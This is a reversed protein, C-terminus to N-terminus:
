SKGNELVAVKGTLTEWRKIIVDCYKADLEMLRAKRGNQECAILTTGSGGFLDLVVDEGKTNNKIQYDFLEVPKMTPHEINKSPKNFNLITTQRRDSAWLHSAGEKWGYLCPEHKCHYDQRGLVMVNKNWVLCQRVKWGVDFCAGRFNFGELDAHWIYFVAGCKMFENACEFADKLFLRFNDNSMSDNQITLSEKTKGKYAVNYPPDTLLLDAKNKDM